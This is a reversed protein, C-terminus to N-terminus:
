FRSLIDATVFAGSSLHWKGSERAFSCTIKQNVPSVSGFTLSFEVEARGAGLWKVTHDKIELTIDQGAPHNKLRVFDFEEKTMGGPRSQFLETWQSPRGANVIKIIRDVEDGLSEREAPIHLSVLPQKIPDRTPERVEPDVPPKIEPKPQQREEIGTSARPETPKSQGNPKHAEPPVVTVPIPQKSQEPLIHLFEQVKPIAVVALLIMAITTVVVFRSTKPEM